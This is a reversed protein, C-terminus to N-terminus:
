RGSRCLGPPIRVWQFDGGKVACTLSCHRRGGWLNKPTDAQNRIRGRDRFVTRRSTGLLEATRDADLGHDAALIVSLAKRYEAITTARDRLQKARQIEEISIQTQRAM